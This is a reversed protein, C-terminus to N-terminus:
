KNFGSFKYPSASLSNPFQYIDLKGQFRNNHMTGISDGYKRSKEESNRMLVIRNSMINYQYLHQNNKSSNSENYVNIQHQPPSINKSLRISM